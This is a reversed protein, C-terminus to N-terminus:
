NTPPYKGNPRKRKIIRDVDDLASDLGKRHLTDRLESYARENERIAEAEKQGILCRWIESLSPVQM